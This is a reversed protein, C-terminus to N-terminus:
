RHTRVVGCLRPGKADRVWAAAVREGVALSAIAGVVAPEFRGGGHSPEVKRVQYGRPSKDAPEGEPPVKSWRAQYSEVPRGDDPRISLWHGGKDVLEGVVVGGESQSTGARMRIEGWNGSLLISGSAVGVELRRAEADVAVEFETGTVSVTGLATKVRFGGAERDVECAVAGREVFIEVAEDGGPVRLRTDAEVWVRCSDGLSLARPTVRTEVVTVGPRSAWFLWGSFVMLLSAALALLPRPVVRRPSFVRRLIKGSLNPPREGGLEERLLTDILRDRDDSM